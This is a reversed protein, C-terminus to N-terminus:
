PSNLLCISCNIFVFVEEFMNLGPGWLLSIPVYTSSLAHVCRNRRTFMRPSGSSRWGGHVDSSVSFWWLMTLSCAFCASASVNAHSGCTDTSSFCLFACICVRMSSVVVDALVLSVLILVVCQLSTSSWIGTMMALNM